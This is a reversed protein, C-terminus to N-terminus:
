ASIVIPTFTRVSFERLLVELAFQVGAIPADIVASIGAAAGCGILTPLNRRSIGAATGILSGVSSGIVAIPAEPGASGGTGITMSSALFTELGMTPKLSSAKRILASSDGVGRADEHAADSVTQPYVSGRGGVGSGTAVFFSADDHRAAIAYGSLFFAHLGHLTREFVWAAAGAGLGILAAIAVLLPRRGRGVAGLGAAIAAAM